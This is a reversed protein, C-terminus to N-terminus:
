FTLSAGLNIGTYTSSLNFGSGSVGSGFANGQFARATGEVFVGVNDTVGYRAGLVALTSAGGANLVVSPLSGQNANITNVENSLEAGNVFGSTGSTFGGPQTGGVDSLVTKRNGKQAVTQNYAGTGVLIPSWGFKSYVQLNPLVAARAGLGIMPGYMTASADVSSTAAYSVTTTETFNTNAGGTTPDVRKVTQTAAGTGAQNTLSVTSTRKTWMTPATLGSLFTLETRGNDFLVIKTLLDWASLSSDEGGKFDVKADAAYTTKATTDAAATNPDDAIAGTNLFTNSSTTFPTIVGSTGVTSAGGTVTTTRAPTFSLANPLFNVNMASRNTAVLAGGTQGQYIPNNDTTVAGNNLWSLTSSSASHTTVQTSGSAAPDLSGTAIAYSGAPTFPLMGASASTNASNGMWQYDFSLGFSDNLWYSLEGGYSLGMGPIAASTSSIPSTLLSGAPNNTTGSKDPVGAGAAGGAPNQTSAISGANTTVQSGYNTTNGLQWQAAGFLRLELGSRRFASLTPAAATTVAAQQPAATRMQAYAPASALAVLSVSLSLSLVRATSSM